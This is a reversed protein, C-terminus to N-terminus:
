SWGPLGRQLYEQPTAFSEARLGVSKLLRQMAASMRADDDIIFVTVKDMATMLASNGTPAAYVL